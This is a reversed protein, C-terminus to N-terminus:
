MVGGRSIFERQKETTCVCGGDCSYSAPCCEPKCKNKAFMFLSQSTNNTGDLYPGTLYKEDSLRDKLPAQGGQIVYGTSELLPTNAPEKMWKYKAKDTTNGALCKGDYPGMLSENVIEKINKPVKSINKSIKKNLYDYSDAFGQYGEIVDKGHSGGCCSSKKDLKSHPKNMVIDTKKKSLYPNTKVKGQSLIIKQGCFIIIATVGTLLIMQVYKNDPIRYLLVSYVIVISIYFVLLYENM